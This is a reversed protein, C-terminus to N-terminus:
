GTLGLCAKLWAQLTANGAIWPMAFLFYLALLLFGLWTAPHIRRTTTWDYALLAVLWFLDAPFFPLYPVVLSDLFQGLPRTNTFAPGLTWAMAWFMLRKHVAPRRRWWVALAILVVFPALSALGQLAFDIAFALDEPSAIRGLAQMRPILRLHVLAGTAVVAAALAVGAIGLRRHLDIRGSGALLAQALFLLYWATMVIGHVALYTPLPTDSFVPRLYFSKGFGLAVVVLMAVATWVFFRNRRRSRQGAM